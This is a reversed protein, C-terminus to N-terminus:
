RQKIIRSSYFRNGSTAQLIYVGNPYSSLSLLHEQKRSFSGIEIRELKRGMVDHLTLTMKEPNQSLFILTVEDKTPNPYVTFLSNNENDIDDIGTISACTDVYDGGLWKALYNVQIGDVETGCSVYLTDRYVAMSNISNNFTSGLSCWQEGNWKAIRSASIGSMSTFNGSAYLYDNYIQLDFVQAGFEVGDGVGYWSSGDWRLIGSSLNGHERFFYGAVYLEGNYIEMDNIWINVGQISNGVTQWLSGNWRAISHSIGNGELFLGAIYVDAQYEKIAGINMYIDGGGWTNPFDGVAQWDEGDWVAIGNASMGAVSDYAGGVYLLDDIVELSGVYGNVGSSLGTWEQGNWKAIGKTSIGGMEVIHGGVYLNDNYEVATLLPGCVNFCNTEGSDFTNFGNEGLSIIGNALFNDVYKFRGAIILQGSDSTSVFRIRNDFGSVGSWNQGITQNVAFLLILLINPKLNKM